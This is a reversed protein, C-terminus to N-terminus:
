IEQASAAPNLSQLLALAEEAAAQSCGLASPIDEPSVSLYGNSDLNYIMYELIRRQQTDLATGSHQFLLAEPLTQAVEPDWLEREEAREQRDYSRNQEDATRPIARKPVNDPAPPIFDMLPNELALNELYRRLEATNLQLIQASQIMKQSAAQKLSQDTQIQM